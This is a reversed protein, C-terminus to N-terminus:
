GDTTVRGVWGLTEFSAARAIGVLPEIEVDREDKFGAGRSRNKLHAGCVHWGICSELERLAGM